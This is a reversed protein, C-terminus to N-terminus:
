VLCGSNSIADIIADRGGNDHWFKLMSNRAEESSGILKSFADNVKTLFEAAEERDGIIYEWSTAWGSQVSEKMTDLLQTVTKVQTAAKVLTEDEAFKELTKVLVDSTLWSTGGYSSISERFSVSEDVVIGMEKATTKLANQFLQGGMGANVVSNWDQLSVRGSAIAQSLQYMATAAQQPTSGSGAALNAIGKIASTATDLDVGAATFTGINRTMEAFNYITKDAYENLEALAENVDDLTTGKDQTNTLITTIANMKTEYEQFGTSIPDVTLSKALQTGTRIAANTINQLATIGVIGLNSFRNTLSEVGAAISSLDFRKGAKELDSLSQTSADFNLGKKLNDISKLTSQIGSEFQKNDFQMQVIREDISSM